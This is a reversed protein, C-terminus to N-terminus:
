GVVLQGKMNPHFNCLIEYSGAAAPATFTADGNGQVETDFQGKPSTVTHAPGDKNVVKVTAGPAISAPVKYQFNEIEIEAQGGAPQGGNAAAPPSSTQAPGAGGGSSGGCAAVLLAM